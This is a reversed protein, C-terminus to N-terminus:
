RDVVCLINVTRKSRSLFTGDVVTSVDRGKVGIGHVARTVPTWPCRGSSASTDEVVIGGHIELAVVAVLVAHPVRGSSPGSRRALFQTSSFLGDPFHHTNHAAVLWFLGADQWRHCSTGKEGIRALRHLMGTISLEFEGQLSNKQSQKADSVMHVAHAIVTVM